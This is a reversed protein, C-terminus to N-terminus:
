KLMELEPHKEWVLVFCFGDGGPMGGGVLHSDKLWGLRKALAEAAAHHNGVADLSHDWDWVLRGAECRAIVRSGRHDTPGRYRTVIAQRMVCRGECGEAGRGRQRVARIRPQGAPLGPLLVLVVVM